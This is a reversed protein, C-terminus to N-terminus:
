KCGSCSQQLIPLYIHPSLLSERAQHLLALVNLRGSGYVNNHTPSGGCTLDSEPQASSELLSITASVQGKLAPFASWVLAAAGSVQPAAMSTGSETKYGDSSLALPFTSPIDVGPASLDPKIGGDISSPGLNSFDAIRDLSDTAGVALAEPYSAPYFVMGCGASHNGASFVPLIGAAQWAQVIPRFFLPDISSNGGWSNNIIDPKLDARPNQGQLDLPELLWEGAALLNARDCTSGTCAKVAIWKAGPAVGTQHSLDATQGVILGTVHTGHGTLDCPAANPCTHTPDFWSYNHDFGGTPQSGRYQRVLAPHDFQAGTDIVAVVVGSGTTQYDHWAPGAQIKELNWPLVDATLQAAQAANMRRLPSASGSMQVPADATIWRVGPQAALEKLLSLNGEVRLANVIWFSRFPIGRATLRKQLDAQTTRATEKLVATVRRGREVRELSPSIKDLAATSQFIVWFSANEQTNLQELLAADIHTPEARSIAPSTPQALLLAM